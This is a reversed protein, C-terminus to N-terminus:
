QRKQQTKVWPPFCRNFHLPWAGNGTCEEEVVTLITVDGRPLYGIKRLAVVAYIMSVVGAKMDGAGRGYLRGDRIVPSFPPSTWGDSEDAPVVDVHGQLLLSRSPSSSNNGDSNNSEEARHHRRAVVNFKEDGYRWDVPSFGREDRIKDLKVPLREVEYAHSGEACLVQMLQRYIANQVRGEGKELTSDISVINKLFDIAEDQVADVASLIEETSVDDASSAMM